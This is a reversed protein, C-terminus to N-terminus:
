DEEIISNAQEDIVDEAVQLGASITNLAEWLKDDNVGHWAPLTRVIPPIYHAM